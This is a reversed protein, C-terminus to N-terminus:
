DLLKSSDYAQSNVQMRYWRRSWVLKRKRYQQKGELVGFKGSALFAFTNEIDGM